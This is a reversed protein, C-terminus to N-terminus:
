IRKLAHVSLRRAVARWGLLVLGLFALAVLVFTFAIGQGSVVRLAMGAAVTTLWVMVGTPALAAPRRWARAAVWGLVLGATFPWATHLLGTLAGAEDHSHRGIAVFVAVCCLDLVAATLGRM